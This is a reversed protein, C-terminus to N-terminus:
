LVDLGANIGRQHTEWAESLLPDWLRGRIYFLAVVPELILGYMFRLVFVFPRWLICTFKNSFMWRLWGPRHDCGPPPRPGTVAGRGLLLTTATPEIHIRFEDISNRLHQAIDNVILINSNIEADNEPLLIELIAQAAFKRTNRRIEDPDGDKPQRSGSRPQTTKNVVQLWRPGRHINDSAAIGGGPDGELEALRISPLVQAVRRTLIEIVDLQQGLGDLHQNDNCDLPM